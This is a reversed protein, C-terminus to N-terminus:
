GFLMRLVWVVIYAICGILLCGILGDFWTVPEAEEKKWVGDTGLELKASCVPCTCKTPSSEPPNLRVHNRCAPCDVAWRSFTWSGSFLYGAGCKDCHLLNGGKLSMRTSSCKECTFSPPTESWSDDRGYVRSVGCQPCKLTKGKGTVKKKCYTCSYSHESKPADGALCVVQSKSEGFLCVARVQPAIGPEVKFPHIYRSDTAKPEKGNCTYYVAAGELSDWGEVHIFGGPSLRMSFGKVTVAKRRIAQQVHFLECGCDPCVVVNASAGPAESLVVGCAACEVRLNKYSSADLTGGAKLVVDLWERESEKGPKEGPALNGSSLNIIKCNPM